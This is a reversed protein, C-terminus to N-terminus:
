KQFERCWWREKGAGRPSLAGAVATGGPQGFGNCMSVPVLLVYSRNGLGGRSVRYPRPVPVPGAGSVLSTVSPHLSWPEDGCTVCVQSGGPSQSSTPCGAVQTVPAAAGGRVATIPFSCRLFCSLFFLCKKKGM